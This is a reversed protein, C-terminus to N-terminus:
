YLHVQTVLVSTGVGAKAEVGKPLVIFNADGVRGEALIQPLPAEKVPTAYWSCPSAM